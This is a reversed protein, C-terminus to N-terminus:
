TKKRKRRHGTYGVSRCPVAFSKRWIRTEGSRRLWRPIAAIRERVRVAVSMAALGSACAADTTFNPGRFNFLNAIRGAMVNALEGPMTDENIEGFHALFHERTEDLIHQRQDASLSAFSESSELDRLVEPLEIRMNTEYHKEGGIANGIVVAVNDSDVNWDPWGADVLASRATERFVELEAPPPEGEWDM